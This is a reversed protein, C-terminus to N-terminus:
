QLRPRRAADIRLIEPPSARRNTSGRRQFCAGSSELYYAQDSGSPIALQLVWEGSVGIWSFAPVVRPRVGTTIHKRLSEVYSDRLQVATLKKKRGVESILPRTTGVIDGHDTVGIFVSGGENNAFAVVTELVEELKGERGDLPVWEKYETRVDEGSRIAADLDLRVQSRAKAGSNFLSEGPIAGFRTEDHMDFRNGMGDTLYVRVQDGISPVEFAVVGSQVDKAQVFARGYADTGSVVAKLKIHNVRHIHLELGSELAVIDQIYARTDPVVIRSVGGENWQPNTDGVWAAAASWLYEHLGLGEPLEFGGDPMPEGSQPQQWRGIEWAPISGWRGRGAHRYVSFHRQGGDFDHNGHSGQDGSLIHNIRSASALEEDDIVVRRFTLSGVTYACNRLRDSAAHEILRLVGAYLSRPGSHHNVVVSIYIAGFLPGEVDLMARLREAVADLSMSGDPLFAYRDM